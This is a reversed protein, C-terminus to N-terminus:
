SCGGSEKGSVAECGSGGKRGTQRGEDGAGEKRVPEALLFRVRDRDSAPEVERVDSSLLSLVLQRVFFSRESQTEETQCLDSESPTIKKTLLRSPSQDTPRAAAQLTSPLLVQSSPHPHPHVSSRIPIPRASQGTAGLHALLDVLSEGHRGRGAGRRLRRSVPLLGALPGARHSITLHGLFDERVGSEQGSVACIPCQVDQDLEDATHDRNVHEELQEEALGLRGCYPCTYSEQHGGIGGGFFLDEDNKTLICQMPHDKTHNGPEASNLQCDQCLDFNYCILCKYRLGRINNNKCHDCSVGEHRSM